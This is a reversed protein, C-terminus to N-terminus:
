LETIDDFTLVFGGLGFDTVESTVRISLTRERGDREIVIQSQARRDAHSQAELVVEAMEPIAESINRGSIEANSKGFFRLAARNAHNINGDNDLGFVGASVGSLVAETFQRRQDVQHNAEVLANRQSELQSTMRNFSDSLM